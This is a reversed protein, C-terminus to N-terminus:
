SGGLNDLLYEIYRDAEDELDEIKYEDLKIKYLHNLEFHAFEHILTERQKDKSLNKNIYIIVINRYDFIRGYVRRPLPLYEIHINNYNLYDDQSIEGRM